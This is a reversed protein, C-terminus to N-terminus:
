DGAQDQEGVAAPIIDDFNEVLGHEVMLAIFEEKTLVGSNLIAKLLIPLMFRRKGFIWM